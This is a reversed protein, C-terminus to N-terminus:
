PEVAGREVAAFPVVNSAAPGAGGILSAVHDGWSELAARRQPLMVSRNYIGAVGFRSAGSQHNVASEIVHPSIGLVEIAHTVFTRRFDHFTWHPMPAEIGADRRAAAIARDLAIKAKSWGSVPTEGDTSFTFACADHSPASKIVDRALPALPVIHPKGNKSRAAPLHWEDGRLEARRMAGVETRRAGTLILLRIAAAHATALTDCARWIEALEAGTLVRDRSREIAPRDMDVMPSVALRDNRVCWRFLARLSAHVHNAASPRDAAVLKRTLDRVDARTIEALPRDGFAPIAHKELRHKVDPASRLTAAGGRGKDDLYDNLAARFTNAATRAADAAQREKEAQRAARTLYPDDEGAEIADRASSWKMSATGLSTGPYTGIKGRRPKGQWKYLHCWTRLGSSTVRLRLGPHGEIKYEVRGAAPPKANRIAADAYKLTADM